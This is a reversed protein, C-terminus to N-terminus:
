VKGVILLSTYKKTESREEKEAKAAQLLIQNFTNRSSGKRGVLLEFPHLNSLVKFLMKFRACREPVSSRSKRRQVGGRENLPFKNIEVSFIASMAFLGPASRVEKSRASVSFCTERKKM